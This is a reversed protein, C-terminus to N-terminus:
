ESGVSFREVVTNRRQRTSVFVRGNNKELWYSPMPQSKLEDSMSSAPKNRTLKVTRSADVAVGYQVKTANKGVVVRAAIPVAVRQLKERAERVTPRSCRGKGSAMPQGKGRSPLKGSKFELKTKHRSRWAQISKDTNKETNPMSAIVVPAEIVAGRNAQQKDHGAGQGRSAGNIAGEWITELDDAALGTAEHQVQPSLAAVDDSLERERVAAAAAWTRRFIARRQRQGRRVGHAVTPVALTALLSSAASKTAATRGPTKPVFEPMGVPRADSTAELEQETAVNHKGYDKFHRTATARFQCVDDETWWMCHIAEQDLDRHSEVLIVQVSNKFRVSRTTSSHTNYGIGSVPDSPRGVVELTTM